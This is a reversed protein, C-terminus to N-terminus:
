IMATTEDEDDSYVEEMTGELEAMDKTEYGALIFQKKIEEIADQMLSGPKLTKILKLLASRLPKNDIKKKQKRERLKKTKLSDSAKDILKWKNSNSITRRGRLRQRKTYNGSEANAGIKAPNYTAGPDEFTHLQQFHHEKDKATNSVETVTFPVTPTFDIRSPDTLTFGTTSLLPAPNLAPTLPAKTKAGKKNKSSTSKPTVPKVSVNWDTPLRRPVQLVTNKKLENAHKAAHLVELAGREVLVSVPMNLPDGAYDLTVTLDVKGTDIDEGIPEEVLERYAGENFKATQPALNAGKYADPKQDDDFFEDAILHGTDVTKESLDHSVALREWRGLASVDKYDGTATGRKKSSKTSITASAIRARNFKASGKRTARNAPIRYVKDLSHDRLVQLITDENNDPTLHYNEVKRQVVGAPIFKKQVPKKQAPLGTEQLIFKEQVPEREDKVQQLQVAPGPPMWTQVPVANRQLLKGSTSIAATMFNAAARTSIGSSEKSTDTNFMCM